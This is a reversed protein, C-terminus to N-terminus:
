EGKGRGCAPSRDGPPRGHACDDDSLRGVLGAETPCEGECPVEAAVAPYAADCSSM